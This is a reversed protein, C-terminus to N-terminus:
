AEIQNSLPIKHSSENEMWGIRRVCESMCKHYPITRYIDETNYRSAVGKYTWPHRSAQRKGRSRPVVQVMVMVMAVDLPTPGGDMPSLGGVKM